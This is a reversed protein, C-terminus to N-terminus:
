ARQFENLVHQILQDRNLRRGLTQAAPATAVEALLAATRARGRQYGSMAIGNADLHGLIVAALEQDGQRAGWGCVLEIVPWLHVWDRVDYLWAVASRYAAIAAQRDGLAHAVHAISWPAMVGLHPSGVTEALKALAEFHAMAQNKDGAASALHGAVLQGYGDLVENHLPAAADFARDLLESARGPHLNSHMWAAVMHAYARWFVDTSSRREAAAILHQAAEFAAAAGGPTVSLATLRSHWCQVSAPDDDGVALSLGRDSLELTVERDAAFAAFLAAIGYVVPGALRQRILLQAWEGVEFKFWFCAFMTPADVLDTGREHDGREVSWGLAARLDDWNALFQEAGAVCSDGQFARRAEKAVGAFHALHADLLRGREGREGLREAGYQRLTELQRYRGERPARDLIVLSRDVLGSLLEFVDVRELPGLGCVAEVADLDFSGAFVSLRDFLVREDEGLMRYSWEVTARLTQHRAATGGRATGHLLGFRDALRATLQNLSMSRVRSAALEVALPMGDLRECITGIVEIDADTPEFAHDAARARDCFLEVAEVRPALAAIAWVQEGVVGLPERSTALVSAKPAARGIAAALEAVADIVHECNDLVLLARQAALRDVISALLTKGPELAISLTSAVAHCVADGHGIPALEVFWVGDPFEETLTSAAEISLRTKGMGGAGVLTVLWVRAVAAAVRNVEQVGGVFSTQPCPLNGAAFLSGPSPLIPLSVTAAALSSGHDSLAIRGGSQNGALSPHHNLIRRELDVLEPGPELGLTDILRHRAEQFLALAEVHRGNGYLAIMALAWLRERHPNARCWALLEALDGPDGAMALGGEFTEELASFRLETLETVAPHHPVDEGMLVEGRWLALAERVRHRRASDNLPRTRAEVLLRKFRVSDIADLDTVLRLGARTREVTAVMKHDRLQRRLRSVAVHVGSQDATGEVGLVWEAAAPRTVAAPAELLLLSLLKRERAGRVVAGNAIELTGLVRFSM